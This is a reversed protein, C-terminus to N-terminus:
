FVKSVLAGLPSQRREVITPTDGATPPEGKARNARLREAEAPADVTASLTNPQQWNMVRTFLAQEVQALSQNEEAIRRRIDPDVAGAGAEALLAQQGPTAGSAAVAPIPQGPSLSSFGPQGDRALGNTALGDTALGNVAPTGPTPAQGVLAARAQDSTTGTQPRPEGPNPPRLEFDPPIVLPARQVVAFEDPARKGMGLADQITGRACGALALVALGLLASRAAGITRTVDKIM